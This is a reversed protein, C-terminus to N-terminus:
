TETGALPRHLSPISEQIRHKLREAFRPQPETPYPASAAPEEKPPTEATPILAQTFKEVAKESLLRPEAEEPAPDADAAALIEQLRSAVGNANVVVEREPEDDDSVKQWSPIYRYPVRADTVKVPIEDEPADAAAKARAANLMEAATISSPASVGKHLFGFLSKHKKENDSMPIGMFSPQQRCYQYHTEGETLRSPEDEM